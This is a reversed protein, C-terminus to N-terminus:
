KLKSTVLTFDCQQLTIEAGCLFSGIIYLSPILEDVDCWNIKKRKITKWQLQYTTNHSLRHYASTLSLYRYPFTTGSMQLNLKSDECKFLLVLVVSHMYVCWVCFCVCRVCMCVWLSVDSIVCPKQTGPHM